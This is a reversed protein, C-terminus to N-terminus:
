GYAAMVTIEVKLIERAMKVEGCARAPAHGEPVWANWLKNFEAFDGMDSLWVIAQLLNERSSGAEALALDIRNFCDEAQEHLSEGDGVQGSLYVVGQHKVIKSSRESTGIREISMYASGSNMYSGTFRLEACWM